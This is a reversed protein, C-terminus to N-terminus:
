NGLTYEVHLLPAGLLDGDASEAVREGTGTIIIVLSNGSTWDLQGVIEEIVVSINPTQQDPGEEGVILWPDPSWEVDALTFTRSSISFTDYTFTAADDILQGQISLLIAGSSVEDVKFQISANQISAGQPINVNNFRMGIIQNGNNYVIELDSSGVSMTGDPKEEADDSGANVRVDIM